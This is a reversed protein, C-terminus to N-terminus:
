GLPLIPSPRIGSAVSFVVVSWCGMLLHTKAGVNDAGHRGAPQPHSNQHGRSNCRIYDHRDFTPYSELPCAKLVESNDKVELM